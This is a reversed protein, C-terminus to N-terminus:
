PRFVVLYYSHTQSFNLFSSIVELDSPDTFEESNAGNM